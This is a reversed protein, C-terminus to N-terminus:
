REPSRMWGEILFNDELLKCEVGDPHDPIFWVELRMGYFQGWDGEYITFQIQSFFQENELDDSFGVIENKNRLRYASLPINETIEFAKLYITGPEGPNCFIDATYIGRAGHLTIGPARKIGFKRTDCNEVQSFEKELFDACNFTMRRGSRGCEEIIEVIADDAFFRTKSRNRHSPDIDVGARSFRGNWSRGELGIDLQFTYRDDLDKGFYSYFGDAAPVPHGQADTFRRVARMGGRSDRYLQWAPDAAFYEILHRRSDDNEMLENLSPLSIKEDDSLFDQKTSVNLVQQQFSGPPAERYDIIGFQPLPEKLKVDTPLTLNDAFHDKVPGIYDYLVSGALLFGALLTYLVGIGTKHLADRYKKARVHVIAFAGLILAYIITIWLGYRISVKVPYRLRYPLQNSWLAILLVLMITLIVAGPLLPHEQLYRQVQGAAKKIKASPAISM